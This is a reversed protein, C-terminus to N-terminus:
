WFRALLTVGEAEVLHKPVRKRSILAIGPLIVLGIVHIVNCEEVELM